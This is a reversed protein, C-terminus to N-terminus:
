EEEESKCIRQLLKKTLSVYPPRKFRPIAHETDGQDAKNLIHTDIIAGNNLLLNILEEDHRGCALALANDGFCDKAEINAGKSLLFSVIKIRGFSCAELLPTRGLYVKQEIDARHELLLACIEPTGHGAAESLPSKDPNGSFNVVLNANAGLSLFSKIQAENYLSSSCALMLGHDILRISEEKRKRRFWSV